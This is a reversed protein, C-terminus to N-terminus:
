PLVDNQFGLGLQGFENSGMSYVSGERSILHTHNYGCAIDKVFVNFSLTKPVMLFKNQDTDGEYGLQGHSNSGLVTLQTFM